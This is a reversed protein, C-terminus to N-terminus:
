LIKGIANLAGWCLYGAYGDLSLSTFRFGM